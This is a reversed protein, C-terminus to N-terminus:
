NATRVPNLGPSTERLIDGDSLLGNSIDYQFFRSSDPYNGIGWTDDDRDPGLSAIVFDSIAGDFDHYNKREKCASFEYLFHNNVLQDEFQPQFVDRPWISLYATPTTFSAWAQWWGLDGWRPLASGNDMMYMNFATDITRFESQVRSIKAKLQANMFNPVAIAALIGIIAVVILLEILTFGSGKKM